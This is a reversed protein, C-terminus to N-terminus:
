VVRFSGHMTSPHADCHYRYTGPKLKLRWTQSSTTGISTSKNVGPGTLHFDHMTSKDHVVISYTGHTLKHVVHGHADVLSITQACCVTATLRPVSRASGHAYAAATAVSAVLGVLLAALLANTFKTRRTARTRQM